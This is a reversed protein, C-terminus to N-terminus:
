PLSQSHNNQHGNPTEWVDTILDREDFIPPQAPAHPAPGTPPVTVAQTPIAGWPVEPHPQGIPPLTPPVLGALSGNLTQVEEQLGAIAEGVEDGGKRRDWLQFFGVLAGGGIGSATLMARAQANFPWGAIAVLV